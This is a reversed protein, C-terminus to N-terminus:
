KGLENTKGVGSVLPPPPLPMWHTPEGGDMKDSGTWVGDAYHCEAGVERDPPGCAVNYAVIVFQGWKPLRETVPIWQDSM